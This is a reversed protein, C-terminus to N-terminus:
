IGVLRQYFGLVEDFTEQDHLFISIANRVYASDKIRCLKIYIM